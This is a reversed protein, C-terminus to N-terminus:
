NSGDMAYYNDTNDLHVVIIDSVVNNTTDKIQLNYDGFPRNITATFTGDSITGSFDNGVFEFDHDNAGYSHATYTGNITVDTDAVGSTTSATITLDTPTTLHVVIINSLVKNTTDKIQLNFDGFPRNINAIFTGNGITGSFDDGVFEFDHDNADYSHATYTGNITVDTDAIGSTTSATITLETPTTLIIDVKNSNVGNYQLILPYSKVGHEKSLEVTFSKKQYDITLNEFETDTPLEVEGEKIKSGINKLSGEVLLDNGAVGSSGRDVEIFLNKKSENCSSLALTAAIGGGLVGVTSTTLLTKIFVKKSM